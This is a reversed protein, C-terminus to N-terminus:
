FRPAGPLLCVVRFSRSHPVADGRRWRCPQHDLDGIRGTPDGVRRGNQICYGPTSCSVPDQSNEDARALTGGGGGCAALSASACVALAAIAATLKV